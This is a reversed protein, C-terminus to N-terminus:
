RVENGAGRLKNSALPIFRAPDCAANPCARSVCAARRLNRRARPNIRHPRRPSLGAPPDSSPAHSQARTRNLLLTCYVAETKRLDTLDAATVSVDPVFRLAM